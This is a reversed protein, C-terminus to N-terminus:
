GSRIQTPNKQRLNLHVSEGGEEEERTLRLVSGDLVLACALRLVELLEDHLVYARGRTSRIFDYLISWLIYISIYRCLINTTPALTSRSIDQICPHVHQSGANPQNTARRCTNKNINLKSHLLAPANKSRYIYIQVCPSSLPTSGNSNQSSEFTLYMTPKNKMIGIIESRAQCGRYIGRGRAQDDSERQRQITEDNAPTSRRWAPPHRTPLRLPRARLFHAEM